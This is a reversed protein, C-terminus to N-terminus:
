PRSELKKSHVLYFMTSLTAALSFVWLFSLLDQNLGSFVTNGLRVGSAFGAVVFGATVYGLRKRESVLKKENTKNSIM